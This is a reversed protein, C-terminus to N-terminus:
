GYFKLGGVLTNGYDVNWSEKGAFTKPSVGEHATSTLQFRVYLHTTHENVHLSARVNLIRVDSGEEKSTKVLLPLLTETFVFHSLYSAHTLGFRASHYKILIRVKDAHSGTNRGEDVWLSWTRQRTIKM